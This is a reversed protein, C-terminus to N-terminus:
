SSENQTEEWREESMASGDPMTADVLSHAEALQEDTVKAGCLNAEGLHAQHLVAGQLNAGRLDAGYLHANSLNAEKLDSCTLNARSLDAGTLDSLSLSIVTQETSILRSEHLFRLLIGKRTGDLTRLAAFTWAQAVARVASHNGPALLRGDLVLDTMRDLYARLTAERARDSNLEREVEARQAARLAAWGVLAAILAALIATAPAGVAKMWDWITKGAFGTQWEGFRVMLTLFLILAAVLLITMTVPWVSRAANWVYTVVLRLKEPIRHM